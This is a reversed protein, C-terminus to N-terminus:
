LAVAVPALRAVALGAVAVVPMTVAAGVGTTVGSVLGAATAAPWVMANSTETAMGAPVSFLKVMPLRNGPPVVPRLRTEAATVDIPAPNDVLVGTTPALPVRENPVTVCLGAAVPSSVMLARM